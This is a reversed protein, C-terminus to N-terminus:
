NQFVSNGWPATRRCSALYLHLSCAAVFAGESVDQHDKHAIRAGAGVEWGGAQRCATCQM